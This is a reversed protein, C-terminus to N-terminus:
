AVSKGSAYDTYYLGLVHSRFRQEVGGRLVSLDIVGLSNINAAFIVKVPGQRAVAAGNLIEIEERSEIWEGREDQFHLGSALETYRSVRERTTGDPQVEAVTREIVRHHAGRETVRPESTVAKNESPRVPEQARPAPTLAVLGLAVMVQAARAGLRWM